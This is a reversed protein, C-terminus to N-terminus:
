KIHRGNGNMPVRDKKTGNAGASIDRKGRVSEM